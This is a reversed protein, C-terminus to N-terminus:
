PCHNSNRNATVVNGDLVWTLGEGDFLVQFWDAIRGPAFVEPQGTRFVPAPFFANSRNAPVVVVFPNPNDYGFHATYTSDGNDAVCELIPTVKEPEPADFRLTYPRDTSFSGDLSWIRVLYDGTPADYLVVRKQGPGPSMDEGVIEGGKVDNVLHVVRLGYSEGLGTLSVTITGPKMSYFGFWDFDSPSSITYRLDTNNQQDDFVRFPFDPADDTSTIWVMPTSTPVPTATPVQEELNDVFSLSGTDFYFTSGQSSELILREGVAGRIRLDGAAVPSQIFHNTQNPDYHPMISVFVVGQQPSNKLHGSWVTVFSDYREEEWGGDNLAFRGAEPGNLFVPAQRDVSRGWGILKGTPKQDLVDQVSLVPDIPPYVTQFDPTPLTEGAQQTLIMRSLQTAKVPPFYTPNPLWSTPTTEQGFNNISAKALQTAQQFEMQRTKEVATMRSISEKPLKTPTLPASFPSAGNAIMETTILIGALIIMSLIAGLIVTTKKM